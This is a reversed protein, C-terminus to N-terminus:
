DKGNISDKDSNRSENSPIRQYNPAQRTSASSPTTPTTDKSVISRSINSSADCRVPIEGRMFRSLFFINM